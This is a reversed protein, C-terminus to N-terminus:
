AAESEAQWVAHLCGDAGVTRPLEARHEIHWVLTTAGVSLLRRRLGDMWRAYGLRHAISDPEDTGALWAADELLAHMSSPKVPADITTGRRWRGYHTQCLEHAVIRGTCGDITCQDFMEPRHASCLGARGAVRHCGPQACEPKAPADPNVAHAKCLGDKRVPQTCGAIACRRRHEHDWWERYHTRCLGHGHVVGGCGDVSCERVTAKLEAMHAAQEGPTWTM